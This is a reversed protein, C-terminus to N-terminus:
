SSWSVPAGVQLFIYGSTSRRTDLDGGWDVDYYGFFPTFLIYRKYELKYDMTGKLYLFIRKTSIIYSPGPQAMYQSVFSVVFSIDLCTSVTAWNLSGVVSQYPFNLFELSFPSSDVILKQNPVM